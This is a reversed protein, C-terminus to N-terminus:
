CIAKREKNIKLSAIKLVYVVGEIYAFSNRIYIRRLINTKADYEESALLLHNDETSIFLIDSGLIEIFEKIEDEFKILESSNNSETLDVRLYDWIINPRSLRKM